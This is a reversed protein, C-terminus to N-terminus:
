FLYHLTNTSFSELSAFPLYIFILLTPFIFLFSVNRSFTSTFKSCDLLLLSFCFSFLQLEGSLKSINMKEMTNTTTRPAIQDKPTCINVKIAIQSSHSDSQCSTNLLRWSQQFNCDYKLGILLRSPGM